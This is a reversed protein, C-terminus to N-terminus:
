HEDPQKDVHTQSNARCNHHPPFSPCRVKSGSSSSWCDAQDTRRRSLFTRMTAATPRNSNRRASQVSAPCCRFSSSSTLAHNHIFPNTYMVSQRFDTNPNENKLLVRYVLVYNKCVFFINFHASSSKHAGTSPYIIGSKRQVISRIVYFNCVPCWQRTSWVLLLFSLSSQSQYCFVLFIQRM